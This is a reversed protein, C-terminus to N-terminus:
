IEEWIRKGRLIQALEAGRAAAEEMSRAKQIGIERNQLAGLKGLSHGELETGLEEIDKVVCLEHIRATVEAATIESYDGLRPIGSYALEAHFEEPLGSTSPESQRQASVK